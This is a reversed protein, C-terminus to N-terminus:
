GNRDYGQNKLPVRMSVSMGFTLVDMPMTMIIKVMIMEMNGRNGSPMDMEMFMFFEMMGMHMERIQMVPVIM